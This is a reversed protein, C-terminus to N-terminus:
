LELSTALRELFIVAAPNLKAEADALDCWAARDVEPFHRVQRSRPPWEMEFTNSVIADADLDGQVAWAYIEKGSKMRAHGLSTYVGDPSPSGVEEAFERKAADLGDETAVDFEGKPLSWAGKDKKAWFPGGPHVILVQLEDNLRRWLLLGASTKAM